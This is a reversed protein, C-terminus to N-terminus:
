ELQYIVSKEDAYIRAFKASDNYVRTNWPDSAAEQSNSNTFVKRLQRVVEQCPAARLRDTHLVVTKVGLTNMLEMLSTNLMRIHYIDNSDVYVPQVDDWGADDCSFRAIAENELHSKAKKSDGFWHLMGGMIPKGYEFPLLNYQTSLNIPIDLVARGPLKKVISTYRSSRLEHVNVTPYSFSLRELVLLFIIAVIIPKRVLAAHLAMVVSLSAFLWFSVM